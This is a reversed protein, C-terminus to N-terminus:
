RRGRRAGLAGACLDGGRRAAAPLCRTCQAPLRLLDGPQGLAMGRQRAVELAAGPSRALRKGEHNRRLGVASLGHDAPAAAAVGCQRRPRGEPVGAPHHLRAQDILPVTASIAAPAKGRWDPGVLLYFGQKTGYMAGIKSFADTRQDTAQFVFFREGFDPVQVVVPERSLDLVGFGYILDQSPCTIYRQGPDNYDVLMGLHNIPAVPAVGGVLWTQTKVWDQTWYRNFMNVLPWAWVYAFRGIERVFDPTVNLRTGARHTHRGARARIHDPGAATATARRWLGMRELLSTLAM